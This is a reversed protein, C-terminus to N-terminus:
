LVGGIKRLNKFDKALLRTLVESNKGFHMQLQFPFGIKEDLADRVAKEMNALSENTLFLLADDKALGSKSLIEKIKEQMPSLDSKKSCTVAAAKKKTETTGKLIGEASVSAVEIEETQKLSEKSPNREKNSTAKRATRTKTQESKAKGLQSVSVVPIGTNKAVELAEKSPPAYFALGTQVDGERKTACSGLLFIESLSRNKSYENDIDYALGKLEGLAKLDGVKLEEGLIVVRNIEKPVGKTQCDKAFKGVDEAWVLVIYVTKNDM